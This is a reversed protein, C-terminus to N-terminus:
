NYAFIESIDCFMNCTMSSLRAGLDLVDCRGYHNEKINVELQFNSCNIEPCQLNIIINSSYIRSDNILHYHDTIVFHYKLLIQFSLIADM